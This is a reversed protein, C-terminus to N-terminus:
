RDGTRILVYELINFSSLLNLDRIYTEFSIRHSKPIITTPLIKKKKRKHFKTGNRAVLCYRGTSLLSLFLLWPPPPPHAGPRMRRGSPDERPLASIGRSKPRPTLPQARSRERERVRSPLFTSSSSSCSPKTCHPLGARAAEGAQTLRQECSRRPVPVEDVGVETSFSGRCGSPHRPPFGPGRAGGLSGRRVPSPLRASVAWGRQNKGEAAARLTKGCQLGAAWEWWWPWGAAGAAAASNQTVNQKGGPIQGEAAGALKVMRLPVPPSRGEKACVQREFWPLHSRQWLLIWAPSSFWTYPDITVVQAPWHLHSWSAALSSRHISVCVRMSTIRLARPSIHLFCLNVPLLLILVPINLVLKAYRFGVSSAIRVM